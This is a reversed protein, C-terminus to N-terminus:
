AAGGGFFYYIFGYLTAASCGFVVVPGAISFMKVAMGLIRGETAFEISPASVANAFGTIPVLTGAGAHKAIKDFVGIGTLAGTIVILTMSVCTRATKEDLSLFTYLSYFFQGILCITGGILFAKICDKIIPSDPSAKKVRQEYNKDIKNDNASMFVCGKPNIKDQLCLIVCLFLFFM